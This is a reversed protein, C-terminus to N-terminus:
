SKDAWENPRYKRELNDEIEGNLKELEVEDIKEGCTSCKWIKRSASYTYEGCENCKKRYM